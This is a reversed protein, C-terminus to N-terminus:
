RILCIPFLLDIEGRPLLSLLEIGQSPSDFVLFKIGKWLNTLEEENSNARISQSDEKKKDDLEDEQEEIGDTDEFRNLTSTQHLIHFCTQRNGCSIVICFLFLYLLM